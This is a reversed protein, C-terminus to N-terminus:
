HSIKSREYSQNHHINYIKKDHRNSTGNTLTLCGVASLMGLMECREGEVVPMYGFINKATNKSTAYVIRKENLNKLLIINLICQTDLSVNLFFFLSKPTMYNPYMVVWGCVQEECISMHIYKSVVSQFAYYAHTSILSM